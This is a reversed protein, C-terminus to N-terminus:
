DGMAKHVACSCRAGSALAQLAALTRGGSRGSEVRESLAPVAGLDGRRELERLPEADEGFSYRPMEDLMWLLVERAVEGPEQHLQLLIEYVDMSQRYLSKRRRVVRLREIWPTLAPDYESM